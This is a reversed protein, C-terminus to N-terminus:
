TLLFGRLKLPKQSKDLVAVVTAAVTVSAAADTVTFSPV